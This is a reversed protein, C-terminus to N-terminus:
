FRIFRIICFIL